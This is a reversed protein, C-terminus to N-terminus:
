ETENRAVPPDAAMENLRISDTVIIFGKAYTITGATKLVKLCKNVMERSVGLMAALVEQSLPQLIRVGGTRTEQGYTDALLLLRRALRRPVDHFVADEVTESVWRLRECLVSMMRICLRPHRELFPIFAARDIRFLEAPRLTSAAATRPKGDILAIEGMVDGADLINLIMMKGTASATHIAVQGSLISFMVDGPDGKHFIPADAPYSLVRGLGVFEAMQPGDLESLLRNRQLLVGVNSSGSM